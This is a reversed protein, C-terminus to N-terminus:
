RHLLQTRTLLTHLHLASTIGAHVPVRLCCKRADWAHRALTFGKLPPPVAGERTQFCIKLCTAGLHAVGVCLLHAILAHDPTSGVKLPQLLPPASRPVPGPAAAAFAKALVCLSAAAAEAQLSSLLPSM